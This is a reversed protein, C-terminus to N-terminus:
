AGAKRLIERPQHYEAKKVRKEVTGLADELEKTLLVCDPGAIGKGEVKVDGTPSILIEIEEM